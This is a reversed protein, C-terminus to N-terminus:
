RLFLPVDSCRALGTPKMSLPRCRCAACSRFVPSPVLALCFPMPKGIDAWAKAVMGIHQQPAVLV